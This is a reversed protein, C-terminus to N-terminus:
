YFFVPISETGRAGHSMTYTVPIGRYIGHRVQQAAAPGVALNLFGFSFLFLVVGRLTQLSM